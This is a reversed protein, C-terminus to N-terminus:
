LQYNELWKWGVESFQTLTRQTPGYTIFEECAMGNPEYARVFDPLTTLRDIVDTDVRDDIRQERPVDDQLLLTQNKPHISMVLEGGAFPIMHHPGRLAAILLVAQYQREKFISYARKVVAVGAQQIDSESIGAHRDHAIDRLYDDLRGIMIVAFCRGPTRGAKRARETGKEFREGIALVQPVTFSVTATITMGEAACEELADLGASTV